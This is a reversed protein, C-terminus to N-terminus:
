PKRLEGVIGSKLVAEYANKAIIGYGEKNPHWGDDILYNDIDGSEILPRFSNENDVLVVKEREAMAYFKEFPLFSAPIHYTMLMVEVGSSKASDIIKHMNSKWMNVFAEQHSLHFSYSFNAMENSHIEYEPGGWMYSGDTNLIELVRNQFDTKNWVMYKLWIYRILKYVRFNNLAIYAKIKLADLGTDNVFKIIHSESLSMDDNYGAMLIILDPKYRLIYKDIRNAMQSTNQGVHPPVFVNIQVEPYKRRLMSGLQAPYSDKPDVGLGASSSEGLCIINVGQPNSNYNSYLTVFLNKLVFHGIIRMGV